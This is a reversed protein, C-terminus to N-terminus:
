FAEKTKRKLYEGYEDHLSSYYYSVSLTVMPVFTSRIGGSALYLKMTSPYDSLLGISFDNLEWGCQLYDKQQTYNYTPKGYKESLVEFTSLYGQNTGNNKIKVRIIFIRDKFHTYSVETVNYPTGLNILPKNYVLHHEDKKSPKLNLADYKNIVDGIKGGLPVGFVNPLDKAQISTINAFSIFLLVIIVRCKM